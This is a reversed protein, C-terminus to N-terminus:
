QDLLERNRFGPYDRLRSVIDPQTRILKDMALQHRQHHVDSGCFDYLGADLYRLANSRITSGYYGSVALLNMQMLVGRDKLRQFVVPESEFTYREPHALVPNYGHSQIAFIIEDFIRPWGAMSVEVLVFKKDGGFTLLGGPLITGLFYLDLFYEAAVEFSVMIDNAALLEKLVIYHDLIDNGSNNYFEGYVHPTTILKSYGRAQMGRILELSDGPTQAGDDIGPIFHSHMDCGLFSFDPIAERIPQKEKKKFLSWM